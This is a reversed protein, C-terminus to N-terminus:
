EYLVWRSKAKKNDESMLTSEEGTFLSDVHQKVVLCWCTNKSPYIPYREKTKYGFASISFCQKRFKTLIGLEPMLSYKTM